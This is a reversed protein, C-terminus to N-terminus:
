RPSPFRLGSLFGDIADASPEAGLVSAQYVRLGKAFFAAHVKVAGGDPLQGTLAVRGAEPYASAGALQLPVPAAAATGVNAAAVAQLETLTMTVGAPAAVDVFSLAFTVGGASCVLMRMTAPGAALTLRREHRDPRCPFMAVIADGDPRIERWDLTPSCGGASM